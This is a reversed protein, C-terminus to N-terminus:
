NYVISNGLLDTVQEPRASYVGQSFGYFEIAVGNTKTLTYTDSGSDYTMVDNGGFAEALSSGDFYTLNSAGDDLVLAWGDVSLTPIGSIRSANGALGGLASMGAGFDSSLVPGVDLPDEADDDSADSDSGELTNTPTPAVTAPDGDATHLSG